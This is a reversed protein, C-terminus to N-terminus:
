VNGYLDKLANLYKEKSSLELARNRISCISPTKLSFSGSKIQKLIGTLSEHNTLSFYYALDGCLERHVPIDSLIPKIGFSMAEVLALGYGEYISAQLFYDYNSLVSQIDTILGKFNVNLNNLRAFERYNDLEDGTGYIDLIISCDGLEKFANLVFDYNKAKKLNGVSLIKLIPSKLNSKNDDYEFASEIPVYNYIILSKKKYKIRTFYDERVSHSVFIIKDNISATFKELYLAYISKEFADKSMISHFSTILKIHSIKSLRGIISPWFHHAHVIDVGYTKYLKRLRYVTRIINCHHNHNLCVVQCGTFDVEYKKDSNFYCIIHQYGNLLPVTNKLLKEIGGIEISEVLHLIVM